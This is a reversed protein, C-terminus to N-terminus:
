LSVKPSEMDTSCAGESLESLFKFKTPTYLFHLKTLIFWRYVCAIYCHYYCRYCCYTKCVKKGNLLQASKTQDWILQLVNFLPIVYANEFVKFSKESVKKNLCTVFDPEVTQVSTYTNQSSLFFPFAQMDVASLATFDCILRFM